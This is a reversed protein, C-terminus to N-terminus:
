KKGGMQEEFRTRREESPLGQTSRVDRFGVSHASISRSPAPEISRQQVPEGRTLKVRHGTELEKIALKERGPNIAVQSLPRKNKGRPIPANVTATVGMDRQKYSVLLKVVNDGEAYDDFYIQASIARLKKDLEDTLKIKGRELEGMATVLEAEMLEDSEETLDITEVEPSPSGFVSREAVETSVSRQVRDENDDVPAAAKEFDAMSLQQSPSRSKSVPRIHQGSKGHAGSVTAEEMVANEEGHILTDDNAENTEFASRSRADRTTNDSGGQQDFVEAPKENQVFNPSAKRKKAPEARASLAPTDKVFSSENVVSLDGHSTVSSGRSLRSQSRVSRSHSRRGRAIAMARGEGLTVNEGRALSKAVQRIDTGKNGTQQKYRDIYDRAQGDLDSIAAHLQGAKHRGLAQTSAQKKDLEKLRTVIEVLGDNDSQTLPAVGNFRGKKDDYEKFKEMRLKLQDYEDYIEHKARTKSADEEEGKTMGDKQAFLYYALGGFLLTGILFQNDIAM